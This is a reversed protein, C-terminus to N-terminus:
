EGVVVITPSSSWTVSFTHYMPVVVECGTATRVTTGDVKVSSVTGGTIYITKTSGCCTYTTANAVNGTGGFDLLYTSYIPSSIVGVPSGSFGIYTGDPTGMDTRKIMNRVVTARTVTNNFNGGDYPELIWGEFINQYRPDNTGGSFMTLNDSSEVCFNKFINM